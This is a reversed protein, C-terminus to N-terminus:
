ESLEWGAPYADPAWTNGNIKSVYVPGSEDPYHVKDGTNYADHAGTPAQWVPIGDGALSIRTYLSETGSAGPEWQEQSTHDQNVAYVEGGHSLREGEVYFTDPKWQPFLGPAMMALDDSYAAAQSQHIKLIGRIAQEEEETFAMRVGKM